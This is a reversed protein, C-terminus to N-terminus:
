SEAGPEPISSRAPPGHSDVRRSGLFRGAFLSFVAATAEGAMTVLRHFVSAAIIPATAGSGVSLVALLIGERAGIGAPFIVAVFGITWAVGWGGIVALAPMDFAPVLLWFGSGAALMTGFSWGTAVIIERQSAVLERDDGAGRLRQLLRVARVMWARHLVLLVPLGAFGLWRVPTTATLAFLVAALAGSAIQTLVHVPFAVYARAWDVGASKAFGVQGAIQWVGGPMYKGLQAAFFGTVLTHTSPGCVVMWNRAGCGLAVLALGFAALFRWASPFPLGEVRALTDVVALLLFAGGLLGFGVRLTSWLRSRRPSADM